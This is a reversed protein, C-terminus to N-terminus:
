DYLHSRRLPDYLHRRRRLLALRHVIVVYKDALDSSLMSTMSFEVEGVNTTGAMLAATIVLIVAPVAIAVRRGYKDAFWSVFFVGIFGGTQFLGNFTAQM